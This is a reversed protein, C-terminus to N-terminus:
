ETPTEPSPSLNEGGTAVPPVEEDEKAAGVGEVSELPVMQVFSMVRDRTWRPNAQWIAVGILGLLIVPDERRTKDDLALAFEPFEMGTLERILVPDGLRFTKPFPYFTGGINFGAEQM